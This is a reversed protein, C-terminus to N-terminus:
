ANLLMGLAASALERCYAPTMEPPIPAPLEDVYDACRQRWVTQEPPTLAFASMRLVRVGAVEHSPVVEVGGFPPTDSLREFHLGHIFGPLFEQGVTAPMVNLASSAHEGRKQVFVPQGEDDTVIRMGVHTPWKGTSVFHELARFHKAFDGEALSCRGVARSSIAFGATQGANNALRVFAHDSTDAGWEKPLELPATTLAQGPHDM